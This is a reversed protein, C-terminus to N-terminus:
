ACPRGAHMHGSRFSQFFPTVAILFPRRQTLRRRRAFSKIPSPNQEGPTGIWRGFYGPPRRLQPVRSAITPAGM